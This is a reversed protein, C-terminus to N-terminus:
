EIVQVWGHVAWQLGAVVSGVLTLIQVEPMDSEWLWVAVSNGQQEKAM